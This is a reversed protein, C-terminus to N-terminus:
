CSVLGLLTFLYVVVVDRVKVTVMPKEADAITVLHSWEGGEVISYSIM